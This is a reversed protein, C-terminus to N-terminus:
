RRAKAFIRYIGFLPEPLFRDFFIELFLIFQRADASRPFLLPFSGVQLGMPSLMSALTRSSFFNVHRKPQWLYKRAWGPVLWRRVDYLGPVSIIIKGEHALLEMAEEMIKKPGVIHELVNDIIIVDFKRDQYKRSYEQLTMRAVPYGAEELMKVRWHSLELAEYRFGKDRVFRLIAGYGCGLELVRLRSNKEYEDILMRAMYRHRGEPEPFEEHFDEILDVEKEEESTLPNQVFTMGCSQCRVIVFHGSHNNTLSFNPPLSEIKKHIVQLHNSDCVICNEHHM